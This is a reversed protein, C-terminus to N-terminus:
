NNKLGLKHDTYDLLYENNLFYALSIISIDSGSSTSNEVYTLNDAASVSYNYNFGVGTTIAVSTGTPLLAVKSTATPDELYTYPETGTDFVTYAKAVTKSGYTFSSPIVVSAGYQADTTLTHITFGSSSGLDASTLGLTLVDPVYTGSLSFNSTGLAAMKFGKTLGTGPDFYSFPSTIYAGNNFTVDYESDVGFIDFAGTDETKGANDTGKYYLFFPLRKVTITGNHDGVTVSAYALNGYVKETTADDAGYSITSTQNTITIGDVVTSDGTFNFGSSTIMSAPLIEHADIVMGGSGTDFILYQNITQTGIKPVSIFLLKYISSDSEYLGLKTPTATTVTNTLDSAKDKKCSTLALSLCLILAAPLCYNTIKM